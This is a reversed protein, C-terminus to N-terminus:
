WTSLARISRCSASSCSGISTLRSRRSRAVRCRVREARRSPMSRYDEHGGTDVVQEAALGPLPVAGPLRRHGGPVRGRRLLGSGAAARRPQEGAARERHEADDDADDGQPQQAARGDIGALARDDGRGDEAM